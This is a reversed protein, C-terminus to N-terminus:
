NRRDNHTREPLQLPRRSEHHQSPQHPLRRGALASSYPVADHPQRSNNTNYPPLQRMAMAMWAEEFLDDDDERVQRRSRSIQEAGSRMDRTQTFTSSRDGICRTVTIEEKGAVGDVSHGREEGCQSHINYVRSTKKNYIVEGSPLGFNM